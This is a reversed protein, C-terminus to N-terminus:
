FGDELSLRRSTVVPCVRLRPKVAQQRLRCCNLISILQKEMEKKSLPHFMGRKAQLAIIINERVSLDAIIGEAKRDEPLYAMGLKMADLPTNIKVEKGKVKLTGTDAKDAGYIARVLESRGSGLLGTLGIVEGKNITIDFPKITGKHSLGKAEIVPEADTIRKDKHDGKIDALDDFDKGMMKAVLMVRPLDKTEYEGLLNVMVFFQLGTM